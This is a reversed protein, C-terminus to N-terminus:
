KKGNAHKLALALQELAVDIDKIAAERHGSFNHKAEKLEKRAEKLEHIAHHIHPHHKYGKYVEKDPKGGKYEDGSEKLAIVIQKMAADIALIAKERHGGYDHSAEKLEIRAEKLEHLSHHMHPHHPADHARAATNFSLLGVIAATALLLRNM